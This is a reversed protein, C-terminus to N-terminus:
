CCSQVEYYKEVEVKLVGSIKALDKIVKDNADMSYINFVTSVAEYDGFQKLQLLVSKDKVKILVKKM